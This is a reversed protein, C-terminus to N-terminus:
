GCKELFESYLDIYRQGMVEISLDKVAKERAARALNENLEQNELIEAAREAFASADTKDVLLANERNECLFLNPPINTTVIGTGAAMAEIISVSMGETQTALVFADSALLYDFPNSQFGLFHVNQELGLERCLNKTETEVDPVGGGKGIILLHAQPIKEVVKQWSRVLVDLGKEASLRGTFVAIKDYGLNLKERYKRRVGPQYAAEDPIKTGNPIFRIKNAAIGLTELEQRMDQNLVVIADATQLFKLLLFRFPSNKLQNIEGWSGTSHVGVVFPKGILAKALAGIVMPAFIQQCHIVDYKKRNKVLWLLCTLFFALSNFVGPLVKFTPSRHM